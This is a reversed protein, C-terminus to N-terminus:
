PRPAVAAAPHAPMGRIRRNLPGELLCDLPCLNPLVRADMAQAVTKRRMQQGGAGVDPSDLEQEPMPVQLRRHNVRM